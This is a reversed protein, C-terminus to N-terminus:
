EETHMRDIGGEGVAGALEKKDEEKESVNIM